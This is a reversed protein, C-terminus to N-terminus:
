PNSPLCQPDLHATEDPYVTNAFEAKITYPAKVWIHPISKGMRIMQIHGSENKPPDPAM